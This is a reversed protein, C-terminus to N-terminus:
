VSTDLCAKMFAFKFLIVGKKEIMYVILNDNAKNEDKIYKSPFLELREFKSVYKGQNLIVLKVM